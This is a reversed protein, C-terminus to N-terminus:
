QAGWKLVTYSSGPSLVNKLWRSTITQTTRIQHWDGRKGKMLPMRGDWIVTQFTAADLEELTSITAPKAAQRQVEELWTDFDDEQSFSIRMCGAGDGSGQYAERVQETTTM